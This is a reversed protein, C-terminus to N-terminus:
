IIRARDLSRRGWQRRDGKRRDEVPLPMVHEEGTILWDLSFALASRLKILKTIDPVTVGREWQSIAAKTVGCLEGLHTQNLNYRHRLQILRPGIGV